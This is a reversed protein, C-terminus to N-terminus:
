EQGAILRELQRTAFDCGGITNRVEIELLIGPDDREMEHRVVRNLASCAKLMSREAADLEHATEPSIGEDLIQGVELAARNQRRFVSEVYGEFEERSRTIEQGDPTITTITTACGALVFSFALAFNFFLLPRHM